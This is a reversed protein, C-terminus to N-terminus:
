NGSADVMRRTLERMMERAQRDKRQINALVAGENESIVIHADVPNKQGYRWCRRVAQYYEEWSDSLGVFAINNCHQWNMGYGAIRPKTVLCRIEGASFALM